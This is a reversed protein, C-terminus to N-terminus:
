VGIEDLRELLGDVRTKVETREREVEALRGNIAEIKSLAASLEERLRDREEGLASQRALVNAVKEELVKLSDLAM